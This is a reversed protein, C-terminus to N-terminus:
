PIWSHHIANKPDKVQTWQASPPFELCFDWSFPFVFFAKLATGAETPASFLVPSLSGTVTQPLPQTWAGLETDSDRPLLRTGRAGRQRPQHCLVGRFTVARPLDQHPQDPASGAGPQRAGAGCGYFDGSIVFTLSFNINTEVQLM